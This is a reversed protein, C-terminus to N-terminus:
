KPCGECYTQEKNQKVLNGNNGLNTYIEQSIRVSPQALLMPCIGFKCVNYASPNIHAWLLRIQWFFTFIPNSPTLLIRTVRHRVM